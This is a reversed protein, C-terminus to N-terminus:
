EHDHGSGINSLGFIAASFMVLLLLVYPYNLALFISLAASALYIM